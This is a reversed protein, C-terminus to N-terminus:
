NVAITFTVQDVYDGAVLQEAPIGTYSITVDRNRSVANQGTTIIPSPSGNQLNLAQGQYFLSYDFTNGNAHKLKGQNSSTATIRFGTSSNSMERVVAVKTNNQTTQLPLNLALTEPTIQISLINPVNGKLNLVAQTSAFSTLTTLALGLTLLSKKM